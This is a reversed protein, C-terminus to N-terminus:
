FMAIKLDWGKTKGTEEMDRHPHQPGAEHNQGVGQLAEHGIGVEPVAEGQDGLVDAVGRGERQGGPADEHEQVGQVVVGLRDQRGTAGRRVELLHPGVLLRARSTSIFHYLDYIHVYIIIIIILYVSSNTPLLAVPTSCIRSDNYPSANVM